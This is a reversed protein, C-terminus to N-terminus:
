SYAHLNITKKKKKKKAKLNLSAGAVLQPMCGRSNFTVRLLPPQTVLKSYNESIINGKLVKGVDLITIEDFLIKRKCKRGAM